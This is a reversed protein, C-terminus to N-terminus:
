NKNKNYVLYNSSSGIHLVITKILWQDLANLIYTGTYAHWGYTGPYHPFQSILYWGQGHLSFVVQHLNTGGLKIPIRAITGLITSYKKSPPHFSGYTYNHVQHMLLGEYNYSWFMWWCKSQIYNNSQHKKHLIKRHPDPNCVHHISSLM